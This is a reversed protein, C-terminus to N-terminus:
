VMSACRPCIRRGGDIAAQKSSFRLPDRKFPGGQKRRWKCLPGGDVCAHAYGRKARAARWQIVRDTSAGAGGVVPSAATSREVRLAFAPEVTADIFQTFREAFLPESATNLLAQAEARWRATTGDLLATWWSRAEQWTRVAM